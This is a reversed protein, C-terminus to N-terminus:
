KMQMMMGKSPYTPRGYRSELLQLTGKKQYIVFLHDYETDTIEEMSPNLGLKKLTPLLTNSHGVILTNKKLKFASHVIKDATDPVYTRITLQRKEALPAATLKTRRYNTAYIAKINKDALLQALGQAREKGNETLDPDNAPQSSKEAHRVLYVKPSQCALATGLLLITFTKKIM